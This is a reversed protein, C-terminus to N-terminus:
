VLVHERLMRLVSIALTTSVTVQLAEPVCAVMVGIMFVISSLFDKHLLFLNLLFFICGVVTAIISIRKATFAIEKQLPSQVDGIELTLGAVQGFKSRMGTAFVVAKGRGKVVSTSMFVLNPAYLYSSEGIIIPEASRPQPESEGTLPVNNTWLDFAEVVRADAPVRDGEELVILDGPVLEEVLVKELVGNRIVKAYEPVWHKLVEMAKEARWEQFLSFLTNVLVVIFIVLSMELMGGVASLVGAFVLLISFLDRFNMFFRYVVSKRKREVLKNPGYTQLRNKVESSTLGKPSTGLANYVESVPLHVVSEM